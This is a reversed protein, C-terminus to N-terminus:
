IFNHTIFHSIGEPGGLLAFVGVLTLCFLTILLLVLSVIRLEKIWYRYSQHLCIIAIPIAWFPIYRCIFLVADWFKM